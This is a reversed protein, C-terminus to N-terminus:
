LLKSNSFFGNVNVGELIVLEKYDSPIPSGVTYKAIGIHLENIYYVIPLLSNTTTSATNM